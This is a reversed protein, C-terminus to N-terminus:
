GGIKKEGKEGEPVSKVKRITFYGRGEEVDYWEVVGGGAHGVWVM